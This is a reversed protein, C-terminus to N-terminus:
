PVREYAGLDIANGQPRTVGLIDYYSAGDESGADIASSGSVLTLDLDEFRTFHSDYAAITSLLLNHDVTVGDDALVSNTINNRIVSDVSPTDDKGNFIAITSLVQNNPSLVSNNVVSSDSAGYLIIGETDESVIVNNEIVWGAYPGDNCNIGTFQGPFPNYGGNESAIVNGSLYVRERASGSSGSAWSQFGNAQSGDVDYRNLLTNNVFYLDNGNGHMGDSTVNSITNGEVVVFDADVYIGGSVDHIFNNRLVVSSSNIVKVGLSASATWDSAEWQSSDETTMITFDDITVNSSEDAIRVMHFSSPYRDDQDAIVTLGKFRWFSSKSLTLGGVVAEDGDAVLVNIFEQNNYSNIEVTGHYGPLLVITDGPQVPAGNNFTRGYVDMGQIYGSEFVSQLSGWPSMLSGDGDLGGNVPDLYFVSGTLSATGLDFNDPFIYSTVTQDSNYDDVAVVAGSVLGDSASGSSGYQQCGPLVTIAFCLYFLLYLKSKM